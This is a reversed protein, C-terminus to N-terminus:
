TVHIGALCRQQVLNAVSIHLLALGATDGLLDSNRLKSLLGQRQLGLHTSLGVHCQETVEHTTVLTFYGRM